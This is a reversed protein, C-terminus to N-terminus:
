CFQLRHPLSTADMPSRLHVWAGPDGVGHLYWSPGDRGGFGCYRDLSVCLGSESVTLLLRDSTSPFADHYMGTTGDHLFSTIYGHTGYM